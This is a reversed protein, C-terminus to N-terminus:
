NTFISKQLSFITLNTIYNSQFFFSLRYMKLQHGTGNHLGNLNCRVRGTCSNRKRLCWSLRLRAFIENEGDHCVCYYNGRPLWRRGQSSKPSVLNRSVFIFSKDNEFTCYVILYIMSRLEKLAGPKM